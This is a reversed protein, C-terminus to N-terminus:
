FVGFLTIVNPAKSVSYPPIYKQKDFNVYEVQNHHQFHLGNVILARLRYDSVQQHFKKQMIQYLYPMLIYFIQNGGLQDNEAALESQLTILCVPLTLEHDAFGWGEPGNARRPM